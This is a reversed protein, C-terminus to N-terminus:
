RRRGSDRVIFLAPSALEVYENQFAFAYVRAITRWGELARRRTRGDGPPRRDIKLGEVVQGFLHITSKPSSSIPCRSRAPPLSHALFQPLRACRTASTMRAAATTRTSHLHSDAGPPRLRPGPPVLGIGRRRFADAVIPRLDGDFRRLDVEELIPRIDGLRFRTPDARNWIGVLMAAAVERAEALADHFREPHRAYARAFGARARGRWAPSASPWRPSTTSPPRSRATASSSRRTSPSSPTSSRPSSRCPSSTSTTGAAPSTGCPRPTTRWASRSTSSLEAFRNLRNATDLDGRTTELLEEAVTALHLSAIMAAWDASAEHLAEYDPTVRDPPFPGAFTMMMAHGVEHAIVDFNLCYDALRGDPLAFAGVELYGYGMHANAWDSLALLELRGFDRGFHWPIPRGLYVEWVDLAFRVCGYLHALRFGPDGPRPRDFHGDPGPMAAPGVPGRWPPLTGAPRADRATPASAPPTSRTSARPGAPRPRGRRHAASCSRRSGRRRRRRPSQPYLHPRAPAPRAARRAAVPAHRGASRDRRAEARRLYAEERALLRHLAAATPSASPAPSSTPTTAPSAPAPAPPSRPSSPPSTPRASSPRPRRRRPPRAQRRRPRRARRLPRRRPPRRADGARPRRRRRRARALLREEAALAAALAPATTRAAACWRRFAEATDLGLDHRLDDVLARPGRRTPTPEPPLATGAAARRAYARVLAREYRAPDLRLEDLVAADEPLRARHRPRLRRRRGALLPNRRPRFGPAAARPPAAAAAAVADLLALADARKLDVRGAPALGRPRHARPRRPDRRPPALHRGQLAPGRRRRPRRRRRRRPLVGAAEAAALTARVNVLPESLPAYDLARPAYALALEHDDELDGDRARAFIAGVGEMGFPACEAARLAGLSAAGLVRTGHALAWLIEKHWVTPRDEFVGDVLGIVRAGARAARYLDGAAAPPPPRRRAAPLRPPRRPEPRRLRRRRSSAPANDCTSRRGPRAAAPLVGDAKSGAELGPVLIRIVALGPERSLDVALVPGAGAATSPPSPPPSTPASTTALRHGRAM